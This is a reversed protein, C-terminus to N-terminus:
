PVKLVKGRYVPAIKANGTAPTVSILYLNPSLEAMDLPLLNNEAIMNEHEQVLRGVGDYIKVNFFQSEAELRVFLISSCPNPYTPLEQVPIFDDVTWNGTYEYCGIDYAGGIPRLTDTLDTRVRLYSLDKGANVLPSSLRPKYNDDNSYQLKANDISKDTFNNSVISKVTTNTKIYQNTPTKLLLNNYVEYQQINSYLKISEGKTSIISNNMIRVFTNESSRPRTDSFIGNGGVNYILNNYVQQNGLGGLMIIGTGNVDHIINNYCDGGAGGGIQIGNVQYVSFPNYGTHQLENHHVKADPACAYQIGEAATRLIKNHHIDLGYILHPWALTKSGDCTIEQGENWFSSGIYMGESGTDHIYNHHILINFMAFNGEWNSQDCFPDSKVMIGAFGVHSVETNAVEIDSSTGEIKIGMSANATASIGFGEKVTADGSGLLQVYNCDSFLVGVNYGTINVKGGCNIIKIPQSATGKINTFRIETYNGASFCVTQQPKVPLNSPDFYNAKSISIDCNCNQSYSSYCVLISWFSIIKIIIRMIRYVLNFLNVIPPYNILVNLKTLPATLL